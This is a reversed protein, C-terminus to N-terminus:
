QLYRLSYAFRMFNWDSHKIPTTFNITNGCTISMDDYKIQVVVGSKTFLIFASSLSKIWFYVRFSSYLYIDPSDLLYQGGDFYQGKQFHATMIKKGILKFAKNSGYINYKDYSWLPFSIGSASSDIVCYNGKSPEQIWDIFDPKRTVPYSCIQENSFFVLCYSVTKRKLKNSVICCTEISQLEEIVDSNIKSSCTEDQMLDCDPLKISEITADISNTTKFKYIFGIFTNSSKSGITFSSYSLKYFEDFSKDSAFFSSYMKMHLEGNYDFQLTLILNMWSTEWSASIVRKNYRAEIKIDSSDLEVLGRSETLIKGPELILVWVQLTFFPGIALQNAFEAWSKKSWFTGRSQTMVLNSTERFVQFGLKLKDTSPLSKHSFELDILNPNVISCFKGDPKLGSPCEALCHGFYSLGHGCTEQGQTYKLLFFFCLFVSM